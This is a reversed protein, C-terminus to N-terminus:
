CHHYEIQNVPRGKGNVVDPFAFVPLSYVMVMVAVPLLTSPVLMQM